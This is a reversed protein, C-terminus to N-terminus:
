FTASATSAHSPWRRAACPLLLACVIIATRLAHKKVIREEELTSLTQAVRAPLAEPLPEYARRWDERRM